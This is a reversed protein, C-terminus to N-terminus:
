VVFQAPKQYQLYNTIRKSIIYIGTLAGFLPYLLQTLLDNMLNPHIQDLLKPYCPPLVSAIVIVITSYYVSAMHVRKRVSLNM